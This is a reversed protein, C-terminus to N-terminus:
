YVFAMPRAVDDGAADPPTPAPPLGARIRRLLLGVEVVALGGYLLTFTVLTLAVELSSTGPSVGAATGM